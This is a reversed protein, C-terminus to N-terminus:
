PRGAGAVDVEVAEIRGSRTQECVAPDSSAATLVYLTKRDAGGLMCAFCGQDATIRELVAGGEALRIVDNTTPSAVWVAGEADLCAGDPAASAPLQAWVRRGSLAGDAAIDYATMRGGFTEGVILTRGDPTIMAGNPFMLEDAAVHVAGDPDARALKAPKMEGGPFPFGFNGVYARGAADVVMDNCNGTAVDSLDAHTVARGDPEIRLVRRDLMSVVLLRGDPLWGLGSVPGEAAYMTERAGDSSMAVVEHAHMDSFWLRGDRWRPGEPFALGDLVTRLTRAM